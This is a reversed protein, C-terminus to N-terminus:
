FASHSVMTRTNYIYNVTHISFQSKGEPGMFTKGKQDDTYVCYVLIVFGLCDIRFINFMLNNHFVCTILFCLTSTKKRKWDTYSSCRYGAVKLEWWWTRHAVSRPKQQAVWSMGLALKVIGQIGTHRLRQWQWPTKLFRLIQSRENKMWFDGMISGGGHKVTPILRTILLVQEKWHM